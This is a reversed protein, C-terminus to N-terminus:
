VGPHDVGAASQLQSSGLPKVPDDDRRGQGRDGGAHPQGGNDGQGGHDAHLKDAPGTMAEATVYRGGGGGARHILRVRAREDGRDEPEGDGADEKQDLSPREPPGGAIALPVLAPAPASAAPKAGAQPRSWAAGTM